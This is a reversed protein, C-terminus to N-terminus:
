LAISDPTKPGSGRPALGSRTHVALHQEFINNNIQHARLGPATRCSEMLASFQFRESDAPYLAMPGDRLYVRKRKPKYDARLSIHSNRCKLGISM